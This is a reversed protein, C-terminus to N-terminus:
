KRDNSFKKLLEQLTEASLPNGQTNGENTNANPRNMGLSSQLLDQISPAPPLLGSMAGVHQGNTATSSGVAANLCNFAANQHHHLLSLMNGQSGMTTSPASTNPQLTMLMEKAIMTDLIANQLQMKKLEESLRQQQQQIAAKKALLLKLMDEPSYSSSTPSQQYQLMMSFVQDDHLHPMGGSLGSLNQLYANHIPNTMSTASSQINAPMMQGQGTNAAHNAATQLQNFLDLMLQNNQGNLQVANNQGNLQVAASCKQDSDTTEDQSSSNTTTTTTTSVNSAAAAPKKENLSDDAITQEQSAFLKSSGGEEYADDAQDHQPKSSDENTSSHGLCMLALEDKHFREIEERYRESDAKALKKYEDLKSKQLKKWRQGIVRGTAEFTLGDAEAGANRQAM